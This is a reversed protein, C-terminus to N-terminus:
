AAERPHVDGRYDAGSFTTYADKALSKPGIRKRYLKGRKDRFRVWWIGSGVPREFCGRPRKDSKEAPVPPDTRTDNPMTIDLTTL